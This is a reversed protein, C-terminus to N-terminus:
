ENKPTQPKRVFNFFDLISSYIIVATLPTTQFLVDRGKLVIEKICVPVFVIMLPGKTPDSLSGYM